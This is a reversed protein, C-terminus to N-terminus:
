HLRNESPPFPHSTNPVLQSPSDKEGQDETFDRRDIKLTFVRSAELCFGASLATIGSEERKPFMPSVSQPLSSILLTAVASVAGM